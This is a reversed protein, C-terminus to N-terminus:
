ESTSNTQLRKLQTRLQELERKLPRIEFHAGPNSQSNRKWFERLEQELCQIQQRLAEM